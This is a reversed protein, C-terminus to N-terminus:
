FSDHSSSGSLSLHSHPAKTTHNQPKYWYLFIRLSLTTQCLHTSLLVTEWVSLTRNWGHLVINSGRCTLVLLTATRGAFAWILRPMRGTQDSDERDAHLFSPDKAVWQACVSSEPWGSAWASRLRWQACVSNTPKTMDRSLIKEDFSRPSIDDPGLYLAEASYSKCRVVTESATWVPIFPLSSLILLLCVHAAEHCFWCLPQAGLSSKSWGPCGGLRILTKGARM